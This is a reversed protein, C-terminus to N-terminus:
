RGARRRRVAGGALALAGLALAAAGWITVLGLAGSAGTRALSGKAGSGAPSVSNAASPTAAKKVKTAEPSALPAPATVTFVQSTATGSFPAAAQFTHEGLPFDRPVTWAYVVIGELGATKNGLSVPDSMVVGSATEGPQLNTVAFRIYGGAAVSLRDPATGILGVRVTQVPSTNGAADVLTVGLM